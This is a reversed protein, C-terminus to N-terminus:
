SGGGGANSLFIAQGRPGSCGGGVRAAIERVGGEGGFRM